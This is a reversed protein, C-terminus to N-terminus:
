RATRGRLAGPLRAHECTRFEFSRMAGGEEWELRCRASGLPGPRGVHLGRVSGLPVFDLYIGRREVEYAVAHTTVHLTGRGAASHAPVALLLEEGLGRRALITM